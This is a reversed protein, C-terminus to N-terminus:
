DEYPKIQKVTMRFSVDGYPSKVADFELKGYVWIPEWWEVKVKKGPPMSVHVIQNPPPPPTHVCAGVYPVLLFETVSEAEDELPVMFGPVRVQQNQHKKLPAAVEGTRFNLGRLMRWDVTPTNDQAAALPVLSPGADPRDWSVIGTLSALLAARMMVRTVKGM